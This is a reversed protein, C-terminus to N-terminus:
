ADDAFDVARRELTQLERMREVLAGNGDDEAIVHREIRARPEHVGRGTVTLLVVLDPQLVLEGISLGTPLSPRKTAPM